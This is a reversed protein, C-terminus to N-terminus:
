RFDQVDYVKNNIIVWLGGDLNHNEIDARKILPLDDHSKHQFFSSHPTCVGPWAMDDADLVEIDPILRNLKDMAKLMGDFVRLWDMGLLFQDVELELLILSVM